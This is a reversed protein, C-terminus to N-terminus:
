VPVFLDRGELVRGRGNDCDYVFIFRQGSKPHIFHQPSPRPKRNRKKSTKRSIYIDSVPQNKKSNIKNYFVIVDKNFYLLLFMFRILKNKILRAGMRTNNEYITYTKTDIIYMKWNSKIEPQYLLYQSLKKKVIMIILLIGMLIECYRVEDLWISKGKKILIAVVLRSVPGIARTPYVNRLEEDPPTKGNRSSM